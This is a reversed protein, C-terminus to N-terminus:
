SKLDAISLKLEQVIKDDAQDDKPLITPKAEVDAKAKFETEAKIQAETAKVEKGDEAIKM